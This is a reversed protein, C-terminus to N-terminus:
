SQKAIGLNNHATYSDPKLRIVDEYEGVAQITMGSKQLNMARRFRHVAASKVATHEVRPHLIPQGSIAAAQTFRQIRNGKSHDADQLLQDVSVPGKYIVALHGQRDILFSTPLPLDRHLPLHFDHLEQFSAIVRANALGVPFPPKLKAVLREADAKTSPDDGMGDISLALVDIGKAKLENYRQSFENLETECPTCWGAWLNVLLLRGSKRKLDNNRGGFDTYTFHPVPLLEVLPIRAVQSAPPVKQTSPILCTKRPSQTIDQAVGSGQILRYRHNANIGTFQEVEGGPWRVTVMKVTDTKGLGFHIWKSSQALFGEGARLTKISKPHPNKSDANAFVVEVRAGIADRNTTKGNGQLRLMLFHNGTPLENRMLRLRPANRNSIWMDLDGDHDWDVLAVARADDPFDLGSVASINAFRGQAAPTDGTNLFFCNRERGSFSRGTFMMQSLLSGAREPGEGDLAQGDM